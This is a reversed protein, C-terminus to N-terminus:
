DGTWSAMMLLLSALATSAAISSLGLTRAKTKGGHRVLTWGFFGCGLGLLAVLAFAAQVIRFGSGTAVRWSFISFFAMHAVGDSAALAQAARTLADVRKLPSVRRSRGFAMTGWASAREAVAGAGIRRERSGTM